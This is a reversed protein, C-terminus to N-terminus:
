WRVHMTSTHATNSCCVTPRHERALTAYTVASVCAPSHSLRKPGLLVIPPISHTSSDLLRGAKCPCRAAANSALLAVSALWAGYQKRMADVMDEPLCGGSTVMWISESMGPSFDVGGSLAEGDGLLM